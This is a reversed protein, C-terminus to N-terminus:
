MEEGGEAAKLQLSPTLQGEQSNVSPEPTSAQSDSSLRRKPGPMVIGSGLWARTEEKTAIRYPM